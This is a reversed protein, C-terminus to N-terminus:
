VAEPPAGFLRSSGGLHRTGPDIRGPGGPLSCGLSQGGQGIKKFWSPVLRRSRCAAVLITL